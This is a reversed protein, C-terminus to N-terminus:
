SPEMDIFANAQEETDFPGEVHKQGERVEWYSRHTYPCEDDGCGPICEQAQFVARRQEIKKM